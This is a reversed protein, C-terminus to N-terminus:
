QGVDLLRHTVPALSDRYANNTRTGSAISQLQLQTEERRRTLHETSIHEHEMLRALIAETEALSAECASRNYPDLADRGSQWDQWLQPQTRTIEELRGIVRQKNGLITLLATYDDNTISELQTRALDLLEAFCKQREHFTQLFHPPKVVSM